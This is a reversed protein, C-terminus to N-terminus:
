GVIWQTMDRFLAHERITNMASRVLYLFFFISIAAVPVPSMQSLPETTDFAELETLQGPCLGTFEGM